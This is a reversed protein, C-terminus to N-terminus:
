GLVIHHSTGASTLLALLAIGMRPCLIWLKARILRLNHATGCIVAYLAGGLAGKLQNRGPRGDMKMHGIPMIVSRRYITAKLTKTIGQKQVFRVIRMWLEMSICRM